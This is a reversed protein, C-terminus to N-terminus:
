CGNGEHDGQAERLGGVFIRNVAKPQACLSAICALTTLSASPAQAQLQVELLSPSEGTALVPASSSRDAPVSEQTRLADAFGEGFRSPDFSKQYLNCRFDASDEFVCDSDDSAVLQVALRNM